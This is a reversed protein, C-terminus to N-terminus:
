CVGFTIGQEQLYRRYASSAKDAVTHLEARLDLPLRKPSQSELVPQDQGFITNQFNQLASDPSEFDTMAMRIWVRSTEPTIPCVFLAISERFSSKDVIHAGLTSPDPAKTLICTYPANVEYTYDVMSGTASHLNSKPQWAQCNTALIGTTTKQVEYDQMAVHARDGLWGEHVFGFHSMDLFNEVLRPASTQVLYPGCNVKRLRADSEAAFVPIESASQGLRVWILGYAERAEYVQACHSAPPSFAPLAPVFRCRGDTAFQWGHYGCEVRDEVVRGLSFKAGRHPCRDAWAHVVGQSDRWLALETELLAAAVPARDLNQSAVVPHWLQTEMM